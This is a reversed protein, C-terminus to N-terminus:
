AVLPVNEAKNLVITGIHCEKQFFQIKKWLEALTIKGLIYRELETSNIQGTIMEPYDTGDTSMLMNNNITIRYKSRPAYMKGLMVLLKIFVKEFDKIDYGFDVYTVAVLENNVILGRIYCGTEDKIIRVQESITKNSMRNRYDELKKPSLKQLFKSGSGFYESILSPHKDLRKELEVGDWIEIRYKNGKNIGDLWDRTNPSADASAIILGRQFEHNSDMWNKLSAMDTVGVSKRATFRKCQIIFKFVETSAGTNVFYEAVIDRARDGSGGYLKVNQFGEMSILRFCLKEFDSPSLESWNLM